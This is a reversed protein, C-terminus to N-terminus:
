RSGLHVADSGERSERRRTLRQIRVGDRAGRAPGRCPSRGTGGIDGAQVIHLDKGNRAPLTGGTQPVGRPQGVHTDAGRARLGCEDHCLGAALHGTPQTVVIFPPASPATRVFIQSVNAVDLHRFAVMSLSTGIVLAPRKRLHRMFFRKDNRADSPATMRITKHIDPVGNSGDAFAADAALGPCAAGAACIDICSMIVICSFIIASIFAPWARSSSRSVFIFAAVPSEFTAAM